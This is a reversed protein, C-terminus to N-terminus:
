KFPNILYTETWWGHALGRVYVDSLGVWFLSAMAWFEHHENLKTVFRWIGHRAKQVPTRYRDCGGGVIHRLSHCGLTYGMILLPNIILILTGLGIGFSWGAPTGQAMNAATQEYAAGTIAQGNAVTWLFQSGDANVPFFFAHIGDYLLIFGLILALYLMYRHANWLILPLRNEGWYSARPEGVACAVPDQWISRYYAKRYYYCTLRFGAPVMLILFASSFAVLGLPWWGPISQSIAHPSTGFIEPSYFPSLYGTGNVWHWGAQFGAWTSYVVFSLLITGVVTPYLWWADRRVTAGLGKKHASPLPTATPVMPRLADSAPRGAGAQAAWADGDMRSVIHSGHALHPHIV